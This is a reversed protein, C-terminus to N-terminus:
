PTQDIVIDAGPPAAELRRLASRVVMPARREQDASLGLADLIERIAVALEGGAGEAMEVQRQAVGADVAMKSFKALRDMAGQRVRIWINMEVINSTKEETYSEAHEGTADRTVREVPAIVADDEELQEVKWSAYAVEGASIRVCWLLADMPDVDIPIGMVTAVQQEAEQKAAAQKGGPSRGGHL